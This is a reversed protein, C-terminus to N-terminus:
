RPDSVLDLLILDYSERACRFWAEELACPGDVSYGNRKLAAIYDGRNGGVLLIRKKRSADKAM